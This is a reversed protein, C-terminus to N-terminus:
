KQSLKKGDGAAVAVLRAGARDEFPAYSAMTLESPDRDATPLFPELYHKPAFFGAREFVLPWQHGKFALYQLAMPYPQAFRLVLTLSDVQVVKMPVGGPCWERPIRPTLNPDQAIKEWWFVVDHTSFPHGDSWKLGRRLCLTLTRGSDSFAWRKVLGPMIGDKPNPAWRLMQEYVCRGYAHFDSTGKMMRLWSGGYEGIEELPQVVLPDEPLREDVPPLEARRVREALMPAEAFPGPLLDAGFATVAFLSGLLFAFVRIDM